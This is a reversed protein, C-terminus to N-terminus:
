RGKKIMLVVVGIGLVVLLMNTINPITPILPRITEQWLELYQPDEFYDPKKVGTVIEQEYEYGTLDIVVLGGAADFWVLINSGSPNVIIGQPPWGKGKDNVYDSLTHNFWWDHEGLIPTDGHTNVFTLAESDTYRYPTM